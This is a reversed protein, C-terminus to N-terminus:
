RSTDGRTEDGRGFGSTTRLSCSRVEPRSGPLLCAMSLLWSTPYVSHMTGSDRSTNLISNVTHLTDLHFNLWARGTGAGFDQKM